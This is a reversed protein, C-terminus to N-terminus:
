KATQPPTSRREVFVDGPIIRTAIVGPPTSVQIRKRMAPADKISVLNVYVEIDSAKLNTLVNPEGTVKVNVESPDVTFSRLDSAARLVTIPLGEFDRTTRMATATDVGTGGAEPHIGFRIAFWILIALVVSLLKWGFNNPLYERIAM